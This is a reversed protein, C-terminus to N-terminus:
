FGDSCIVDRVVLLIAAMAGILLALDFCLFNHLYIPSNRLAPKPNLASV